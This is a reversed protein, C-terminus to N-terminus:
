RISSASNIFYNLNKTHGLHPLSPPFTPSQLNSLQLAAPGHRCLSSLARLMHSQNPSDLALLLMPVVHRKLYVNNVWLLNSTLPATTAFWNAKNLAIHPHRSCIGVYAYYLFQIMNYFIWTEVSALVHFLLHRVCISAVSKRNKKIPFSTSVLLVLVVEHFNLM